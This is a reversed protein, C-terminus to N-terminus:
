HILGAARWLAIQEANLTPPEGTERTVWADHVALLDYRDMLYERLATVILGNRSSGQMDAEYDLAALLADPLLLHIETKPASRGPPRGRKRPESAM